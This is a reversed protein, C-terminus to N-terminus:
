WDKLGGDERLRQLDDVSEGGAAQLVVFSEVFTAEDYGRQREKVQVHRKVSEPLGLSRFGQVALPIGGLATPSEPAPEPDMEFLLASETPSPKEPKRMGATYGYGEGWPHM